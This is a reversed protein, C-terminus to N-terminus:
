LGQIDYQEKAMLRLPGNFIIKFLSDVLTEIDISRNDQVWHRIFSILAGSVYSHFYDIPIGAITDESLLNNKMNQYILQSVKEELQSRRELQLITNYFEFHNDIHTIISKLIEETFIHAFTEVDIGKHISHHMNLQTSLQSIYENEMDDLLIYKDEYHLYFTGRSIDAYTAIDNITIKELDHTRLLEVFATKIAHKTRRVRRDEAM